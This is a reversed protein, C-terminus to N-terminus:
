CFYCLWAVPSPTLSVNCSNGVASTGPMAHTIAGITLPIKYAIFKDIVARQAEEIWGEQLFSSRSCTIYLARPLRISLVSSLTMYVHLSM